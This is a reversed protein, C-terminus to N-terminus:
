SYPYDLDRVVFNLQTKTAEIITFQGQEFYISDPLRYGPFNVGLNDYETIDREHHHGFIAHVKKGSNDVITKLQMAHSETFYAWELPFNYYHPGHHSCLIIHDETAANIENEFWTYVSSSRISGRGTNAHDVGVYNTDLMIVRVSVDDKQVAFSRNFKSFAVEPRADYGLITVLQEYTYDDFDHNGIMLEKPVSISGWQANFFPFDAPTDVMDGLHLALDAGEGNVADVFGRLKSASAYYYRSGNIAGTATPHMDVGARLHNDTLVYISLPEVPPPPLQPPTYEITKPANIDAKAWTSANIKLHSSDVIHWAGNQKVYYREM